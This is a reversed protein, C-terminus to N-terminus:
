IEKSIIISKNVKEFICGSLTKKKFNKNYNIHNILSLIKKGRTFSKKSGTNHILESISRFVVEEPQNFFVKNIIISKKSSLMSTNENINKKVYYEIAKNSKSLNKLTLTFKEFTLGDNILQNILKRIKIRLFYDNENSPDEINFNFTNKTIYSLDQKSINLLPRVLYVNFNKKIKTKNIEFSSLGKLGSGRILRIFFNEYLDNKQHATLVINVQHKLSQQFILDYRKERANAQLNSLKKNNKWTLIKINIGFKKLQKKTQVAEDTSTSRLKHDVTFYFYDINKKISYCKSLFALAMSDVGGSVAIGLRILKYKEINKEFESYVKRIRPNKLKNLYYNHIKKKASLNRKKM